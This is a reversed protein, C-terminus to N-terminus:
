ACDECVEGDVGSKCDGGVTAKREPVKEQASTEAPAPAPAPIANKKGDVHGLDRAPDIIDRVRKKLEKTEPFGGDIKRDWLQTQIFAQSSSASTPFSYLLIQFKGGTSPILSVEGLATSFTSLLEQAYRPYHVPSSTTEPTESIEPTTAASAM